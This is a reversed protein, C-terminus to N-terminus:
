QQVLRNREIIVSLLANIENVIKIDKLNIELNPTSLSNLIISFTYSHQANSTTITNKTATTGGIVAGIGGGLVGGVITRGIVSGTSSKQVSSMAIIDNNDSLKYGIIEKFNYPTGYIVITKNKEFIFIYNQGCKGPFFQGIISGFYIEKTIDGYKSQMDNILVVHENKIIEQDKEM